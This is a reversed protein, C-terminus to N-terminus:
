GGTRTSAARLAYAQSLERYYRAMFTTAPKGAAAYHRAERDYLSATREAARAPAADGSIAAACPVAMALLTVLAVCSKM